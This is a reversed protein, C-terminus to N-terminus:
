FRAEAFKFLSGTPCVFRCYPRHIFLSLILFGGAIGLTVASADTFFFAAFPEYGMWDFWLGTWLLWMLVFWLAMRFYDLWKILGPSMKIKIKVFKGFLEQISGYPCMWLCYYDKKGFFPYIFAAVLMLATPILVVKTIGNALYSTMLSYSIFTGGWFGLLLVNLVMQLTRYRKDKLYLPIIGGALIIAITVYFKVPLREAEAKHEATDVNNNLAFAVGAKINGIIAKSTFTAGSVGDIPKSAAEQLTLGDLSELLDSNTIAGFFEPTEQNKLPKIKTIKGDTVTIEVPTQGGYGTIGKGIETTNIIFGNDTHTITEPKEEEPNHRLQIGIIKNDRWIPVVLMLMLCVLFCIYQVIRPKKNVTGVKEVAKIKM